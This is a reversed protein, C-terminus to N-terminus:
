MEVYDVPDIYHLWEGGFTEVVKTALIRRETQVIMYRRLWREIASPTAKVSVIENIQMIFDLFQGRPEAGVIKAIGKSANLNTVEEYTDALM